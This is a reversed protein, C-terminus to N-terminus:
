REERAAGKKPDDEGDCRVNDPTWALAQRKAEEIQEPTMREAAIEKATRITAELLRRQDPSLQEVHQDAIQFWKYATVIDTDALDPAALYSVGAGLWNQTLADVRSPGVPFTCIAAKQLLDLKKQLTTLEEKLLGDIGNRCQGAVIGIVGTSEGLAAGVVAGIAPFFTAYEPDAVIRLSGACGLDQSACTSYQFRAAPALTLAGHVDDFFIEHPEIPTVPTELTLLDTRDTLDLLDALAPLPPDLRVTVEVEILEIARTQEANFIYGFSQSRERDSNEKEIELSPQERDLDEIKLQWVWLDCTLARVARLENFREIQQATANDGTAEALLLVGNLFLAVVVALNRM